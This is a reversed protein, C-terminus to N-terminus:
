GYTQDCWCWCKTWNSQIMKTICIVVAQINIIHLATTIHMSQHKKKLHSPLYALLSFTSLSTICANHQLALFWFYHSFSLQSLFIYTRFFNWPLFLDFLFHASAKLKTCVKSPQLLKLLQLACILKLKDLNRKAFWVWIAGSIFDWM